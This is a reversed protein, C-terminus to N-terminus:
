DLDFQIFPKNYEVEKLIFRNVGGCGDSYHTFFNKMFDSNLSGETDSWINESLSYDFDYRIGDKCLTKNVKGVYQAWIADMFSEGLEFSEFILLPVEVSNGGYAILVTGM